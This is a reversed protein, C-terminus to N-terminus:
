VVTLAQVVQRGGSSSVLGGRRVAEGDRNNCHGVRPSSKCWKCLAVARRLNM